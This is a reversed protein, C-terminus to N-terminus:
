VNDGESKAPRGWPPRATPCKYINLNLCILEVCGRSFIEWGSESRSRPEKEFSLCGCLFPTQKRLNQRSILSKKRFGLIHRFKGHARIQLALSDFFIKLVKPVAFM